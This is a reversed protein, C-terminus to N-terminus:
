YGSRCLEKPSLHDPVEPLRQDDDCRFYEEPLDIVLNSIKASLLVLILSSNNTKDLFEM